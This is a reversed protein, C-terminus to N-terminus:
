KSRHNYIRKFSEVPLYNTRKYLYILREICEIEIKDKSGLNKLMIFQVYKKDLKKSVCHECAKLHKDILALECYPSNPKYKCYLKKNDLSKALKSLNM